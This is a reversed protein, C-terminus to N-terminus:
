LPGDEPLEVVTEMRRPPAQFPTRHSCKPLPEDQLEACFMPDSRSLGSGTVTIKRDDTVRVITDERRPESAMSRAWAVTSYPHTDTCVAIEHERGGHRVWIRDPVNELGPAQMLREAAAAAAVEPQDAVREPTEHPTM